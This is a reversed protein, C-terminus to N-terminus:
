FIRKKDYHIDIYKIESANIEGYYPCCSYKVKLNIDRVISMRM